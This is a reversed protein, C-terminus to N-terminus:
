AIGIHPRRIMAKPFRRQKVENNEDFWECVLSNEDIELIAMSPGTGSSHEVREGVKLPDDSMDSTEM